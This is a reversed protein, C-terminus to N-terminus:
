RPSCRSRETASITSATASPAAQPSLPLRPDLRDLAQIAAKEDSPPQRTKELIRAEMAPTRVRSPQGRYKARLGDLGEALFRRKWLSIYAPHCALAHAIASYSEDDALMLM